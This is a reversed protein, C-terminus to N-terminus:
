DVKTVTPLRRKHETAEIRESIKKIKEPGIIDCRNQIYSDFEIYSFGLEEEDTMGHELEATPKKDIIQQPFNPFCSRKLYRALEWVETKYLNGIPEFDVAGDGWKTFYGLLYESKNTTGIVLKVMRNAAGYLLCMRIRSQLNSKPMTSEKSSFYQAAQQEFVAVIPGINIKNYPVGLSGALEDADKTNQQNYPLTIGYVKEPGLALVSLAAVVASDIGGSIGVVVGELGKTKEQIDKVIKKCITECDM